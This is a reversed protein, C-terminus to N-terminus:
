RQKKELLLRCVLNERSQLESTHEESRDMVDPDGIFGGPKGRQEETYGRPAESSPDVPLQSEDPLIPADYNPNGEDDLPYWVPFPVGFFRQRSILWDGNLGGVWHEFRTRMHEPHWVLERGRALLGDRVEPDRGGNRIYWQRTTVIELPKDGKEFFKVPHTIKEPEGVLDGSERLLEVARERAAHLPTGARRASAERGAPSGLGEPPAAVIRGDWGIIPRTPLQLERWWTVDTVDGFTCIMAIGTGKEPDALRHAVVPVEVGFV